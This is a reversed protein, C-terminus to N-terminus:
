IIKQAETKNTFSRYGVSIGEYVKCLEDDLGQCHEFLSAKNKKASESTEKQRM